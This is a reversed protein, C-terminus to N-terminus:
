CKTTMRANFGAGLGLGGDRGVADPLFTWGVGLVRKDSIFNSKITAFTDVDNSPRECKSTVNAVLEDSPKNTHNDIIDDKPEPMTGATCDTAIHVNCKRSITSPLTGFALLPPPSIPLNNPAKETKCATPLM